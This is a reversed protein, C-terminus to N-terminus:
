RPHFPRAAPDLVAAKGQQQQQQQLLTLHSPVRPMSPGRSLSAPNRAPPVATSSPSFGTQRRPPPPPPAAVPTFLPASRLAGGPAGAAGRGNLQQQPQARPPYPQTQQPQPQPPQQAAPEEGAAPCPSQQLVLGGNVASNAGKDLLQQQVGVMHTSHAAPTTSLPTSCSRRPAAHAEMDEMSGGNGNAHSHTPGTTTAAAPTDDGHESCAGHARKGGARAAASQELLVAESVASDLLGPAIYTFGKFFDGCPDGGGQHPSNCPSDEPPQDTWLKDFNATCTRSSVAPKFKSELERRELKGWNISKFFPHRRVAEAGQPGTGLRKGPERTLLAKLLNLADSSLFKPYKVKSSLIQTQLANRSKARFPPVGCLMEYLLIGTSWWDVDKTHGKGAIIEPAMYEMTGIFSNSRASEDGMNSKALGFDTLKVHGESDLLVNEPKLDRHMIGISHLYGIASVIEATYLRAVAEDFVGQRYLNFFLHGGNIFELVLYLKTQTQFSCRLNVIYPHVVSTLVDRESRVYESHDKQLIREKKMIKMAHVAGTAKHQVQLVKGFAGQGVVRLMEFDQPTVKAQLPNQKTNSSQLVPGDSDLEAQARQVAVEENLRKEKQVLEKISCRGAELGQQVAQQLGDDGEADVLDESSATDVRAASSESAFLQNSAPHDVTEICDEFSDEFEDEFHEQHQETPSRTAAQTEQTAQSSDPEEISHQQQAARQQQRQAARKQGKSTIAKAQSPLPAYQSYPMVHQVM